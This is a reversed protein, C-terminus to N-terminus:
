PGAMKILGFFSQGPDHPPGVECDLCAESIGRDSALARAFSERRPWIESLKNDALSGLGAARPHACCPLMTGDAAFYAAGNMAGCGGKGQRFVKGTQNPAGSLNMWGRFGAVWGSPLAKRWRRKDSRRRVITCTTLATHPSHADRLEKARRFFEMLKAWTSPPRLREYDEPMGNGDCSVVLCDILRARFVEELLRWDQSQGNTSLELTGVGFPASRFVRLIEPLEPHLLPEGFIFPRLLQIHEVCDMNSVCRRLLSTSV